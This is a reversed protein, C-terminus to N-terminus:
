RTWVMGGGIGTRLWIVKVTDVGAQWQDGNQFMYRKTDVDDQWQNRNQVLYGKGHGCWRAVPRQESGSFKVVDVGDQWQDRNQVLFM